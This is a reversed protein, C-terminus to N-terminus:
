LRVSIPNGEILVQLGIQAVRSPALSGEATLLDQLSRVRVLEMIIWPRGADGTVRDHATVIGPHKLRAAARAERDLRAIWAQRQADDLQEPLHLEKAAVERKLQEDHARWVAGMGGRGLLATLRYRGAVVRGGAM